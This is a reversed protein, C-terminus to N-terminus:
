RLLSKQILKNRTIFIGIVSIAGLLLVVDYGPIIQPPKDSNAIEVDIKICNSIVDGYDSHAVVIFYYNGDLYGSLDLNLATIKDALLTQSENIETIFHSFQYVSFYNIGYFSTWLLFFSGDTDPTTANSYLIFPPPTYVILTITYPEFDYNDGAYASITIDYVGKQVNLLTVSYIGDNDLDELEGQGNIWNYGVTANKIVNNQPDKLIIKVLVDERTYVEIQNGGDERSVTGTIRKIAIRLITTEYSYNPAYAYIIFINIGIGLDTTDLLLYHQGLTTDETLNFTFGGEMLQVTANAIPFGTLNNTYKITINLMETITLEIDPYDTKEVNNLFLQLKAPIETLEIVFNIIQSQYNESEAIITLIYIGLQLNSTDFFLYYQGLNTNETLNFTFGGGMLQITANTIPFGTLNDTYKVTINLMESITLKIYPDDTKIDGNLYLELGTEIGVIFIRFIISQPECGTKNLTIWLSYLNGVDYHSSNLTINYLGNDSITSIDGNWEITLNANEIGIGNSKYTYNLHITFNDEWVVTLFSDEEVALVTQAIIEISIIVENEEYDLHQSTIKLYNIGPIGKSTNFELFYLGPSIESFQWVVGLFDTTYINADIIPTFDESDYFSVRLNITDGEVIDKFYENDAELISDHIKQVTVIISQPEYGEKRALITFNNAGFDLETANLIVSYNSYSEVLIESVGSGNFDVTAGSIFEKSIAEVYSVTVNILQNIHTTITPNSTKNEGNLYLDLETEISASTDPMLIKKNPVMQQQRYPQFM